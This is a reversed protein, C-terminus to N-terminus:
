GQSQYQYVYKRKNLSGEVTAHIVGVDGSMTAHYEVYRYTSNSLNPTFCNNKGIKRNSAFHIIKVIAPTVLPIISYGKTTHRKM